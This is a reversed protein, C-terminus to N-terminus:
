VLGWKRAASLRAAPNEIQAILELRDNVSGRDVTEPPLAVGLERAKAIRSAPHQIKNVDRLASARADADGAAIADRRAADSMAPLTGLEALYAGEDLPAGLAANKVERLELVDDPDLTVGRERAAAITREVLAAWREAVAPSSSLISLFNFHEAM